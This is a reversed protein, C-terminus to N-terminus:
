HAIFFYWTKTKSNITGNTADLAAGATGGQKIVVMWMNESKPAMM